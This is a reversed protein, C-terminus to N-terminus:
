VEIANLNLATKFDAPLLENRYESHSLESTQQRKPDCLVSRGIGARKAALMDSLKDGVFVSHNLDISLQSSAETIMGPEPKRCNCANLRSQDSFSPHHPCFYVAIKPLGHQDFQHQFYGMLDFFQQESYYGRAIGSQNTVIVPEYGKEVFRAILDFIGDIFEVKEREFVYGHNINIVGDRDLFLAKKQKM